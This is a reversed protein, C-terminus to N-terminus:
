KKKRKWKKRGKEEQDVHSVYLKAHFLNLCCWHLPQAFVVVGDRNIPLVWSWCQFHIITVSQDDFDCVFSAVIDGNVPIIIEYQM